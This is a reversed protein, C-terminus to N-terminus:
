HKRVTASSFDRWLGKSLMSILGDIRFSILGSYESSPSISFSWNWYKPWRIHLALENSFVRIRPFISLLLLLPHCSSITPPCWWSLLCSNSRVRLSPSPWPLRVHQLGHPQLSNSVVSHSFQVSPVFLHILNLEKCDHWSFRPTLCFVSLYMAEKQFIPMNWKGM